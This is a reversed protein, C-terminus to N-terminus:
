EVAEECRRTLWPPNKGFYYGKGIVTHLYPCDFGKDVQQRLKSITVDIVNSEADFEQNWVAQGITRRSCVQEVNRMFYELLALPKGMLELGRGARTAHVQTLDLQLQGYSLVDASSAQCQRLLGRIRAALESFSRDADMVQDAGADFAEIVQEEGVGDAVILLPDSVEAERLRRTLTVARDLSRGETRTLIADYAHGEARRQAEREDAVVDIGYGYGKLGPVLRDAEAESACVLMIRM